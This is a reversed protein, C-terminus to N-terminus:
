INQKTGDNNYISIDDEGTINDHFNM